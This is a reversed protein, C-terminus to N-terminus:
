QVKVKTKNKIAANRAENEAKRVAQDHVQKAKRAAEIQAPDKTPNKNVYDQASDYGAKVFVADIASQREAIQAVQKSLNEYERLKSLLYSDKTNVITTVVQGNSKFEVGAQAPTSNLSGIGAMLGIGMIGGAVIKQTNNM